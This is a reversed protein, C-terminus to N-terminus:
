LPTAHREVADLAAEIEEATTYFHPSLRVGQVFGVDDGLRSVNFGDESLTEYVGEPDEVDITVIGTRRDPDTPTSVDFGRRRAGEILHNTHETVREYITEPGVEQIISLGASAQYANPIPPTGFQFRSADPAYEPSETEFRYDTSFWGMSPPEFESILDGDVYMFAIGPGGFLFKLVGTVLIDIDQKEVDIPVIGLSQYADLVFYGGRDHVLDAVPKPDMLGGTASFAHSTCVLRTDDTIVDAYAEVPVFEENPSKALKIEVDRRRRQAEWFQLLTPFELETTVIEDGPEYEIASTLQAISQTVSTLVAIEEPSANILGAFREKAEAIADRWEWWPHPVQICIREFERRAEIGREPIPAVLANDLHVRERESIMPFESRWRDLDIAM